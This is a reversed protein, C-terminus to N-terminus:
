DQGRAPGTDGLDFNLVDEVLIRGGPRLLGILRGLASIGETTGLHHLVFRVHILDFTGLTGVDDTLINHEVM